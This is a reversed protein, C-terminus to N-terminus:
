AVVKEPMISFVDFTSVRKTKNAQTKAKNAEDTADKRRRKNHGIVGCSASLAMKERCRIPIKSSVM